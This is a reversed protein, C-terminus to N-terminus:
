RAPTRVARLRTRPHLRHRLGPTRWQGIRQWRRRAHDFVEGIPCAKAADLFARSVDRERAVADVLAPLVPALLRTRQHALSVRQRKHKSYGATDASTVPSRAVWQQWRSPDQM